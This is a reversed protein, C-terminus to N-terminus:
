FDSTPLPRRFSTTPVNLVCYVSQWDNEAVENSAMPCVGPIVSGVGLLQGSKIMRTHGMTKHRGEQIKTNTAIISVHGLMVLGKAEWLQMAQTLEINRLWGIRGNDQAM